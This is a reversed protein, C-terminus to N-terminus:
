CNAYSVKALCFTYMLLLYNALNLNGCDGGWFFFRAFVQIFPSVLRLNALFMKLFFENLNKDLRWKQPFSEAPGRTYLLRRCDFLSSKKKFGPCQASHEKSYFPEKIEQLNHAYMKKTGVSKVVLFNGKNLNGRQFQVLAAM